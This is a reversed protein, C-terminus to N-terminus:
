GAPGGLLSEYGTISAASIACLRHCLLRRFAAPSPPAAVPARLGPDHVVPHDRRDATEPVFGARYMRAAGPWPALERGFREGLATALDPTLCAVHALGRLAEALGAPDVGYYRSQPKNALAVIPLRREPSLLHAQFAELQAEDEVSRPTGLVPMAGDLLELQDVWAGLVKPPAVMIPGSARDECTTQLAVLDANGTDAVLARTTWTRGGHKEDYAVELSWRAGADASAISLRRDGLACHFEDQEIEHDAPMLRPWRARAWGLVLSQALRRNRASHTAGTLASRVMVRLTAASPHSPPLTPLPLTPLPLSMSMSM